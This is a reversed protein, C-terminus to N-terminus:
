DLPQTLLWPQFVRLGHLLAVHHWEVLEKEPEKDLVDDRSPLIAVLSIGHILTKSIEHVSTLLDVKWGEHDLVNSTNCVGGSRM